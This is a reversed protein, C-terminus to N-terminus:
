RYWPAAKGGRLKLQTIKACAPHSMNGMAHSGEWLEGNYKFDYDHMLMENDKGPFRLSGENMFGNEINLLTVPNCMKGIVSHNLKNCLLYGELHPGDPRFPEPKGLNSASTNFLEISHPEIPLAKSPITGKFSGDPHIISGKMRISYKRYDTECTSEGPNNKYYILRFNMHKGNGSLEIKERNITGERINITDWETCMKGIISWDPRSRLVYGGFLQVEGDPGEEPDRDFVEMYLLDIYFPKKLPPSKEWKRM